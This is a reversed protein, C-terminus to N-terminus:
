DRIGSLHLGRCFKSRPEPLLQYKEVLSSSLQLMPDLEGKKLELELECIPESADKAIIEGVDVALEAQTNKGLNLILFRREFSCSFLEKLEKDRLLEKLAIGLEEEDFVSIDPLVSNVSVNWEQRRQLYSRPTGGGKITAVTKDGERRVRYVIGAKHLDLDQTDYYYALVAIRSWESAGLHLLTLDSMIAEALGIEKLRFKVEIEISKM